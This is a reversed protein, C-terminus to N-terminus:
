VKNEKPAFSEIAPKEEKKSVVLLVEQSSSLEGDSVTIAVNYEGADGYTTQWQGNESLPESYSYILNQADPDTAKPQLSILDTENYAFTTIAFSANAAALLVILLLIIKEGM